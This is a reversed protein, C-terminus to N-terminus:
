SANSSLVKLAARVREEPTAIEQPLEKLARQAQARSYGLTELAEVVDTQAALSGGGGSWEESFKDQLEAIIKQATRNGIGSVRTLVSPDGDAIARQLIDLAAANLIGLAAKPGIGSIGILVRFMSLEKRDSFGYLEAANERLYYHTYLTIEKGSAMALAVLEREVLFVEYGVGGVNVIVSRELSEQVTGKLYAIM